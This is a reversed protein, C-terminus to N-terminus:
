DKSRSKEIIATTSHGELFPIVTVKGGYELVERSGVIYRKDNESDVQPDYDGGKVLVNPRIQAILDMPTQSSFVVAVDVSRLAELVLKRSAEDNIPREPGKGLMRVSADSNVGVILRSGLERAGKLYTVHGAHLIDFVGNTFVISEGQERWVQLTAEIETPLTDM